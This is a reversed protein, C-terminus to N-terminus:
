KTVTTKKTTVTKGNITKTTTSVSKTLGFGRGMLHDDSDFASSAFNSGGMRMSGFGKGFFDDNDFM